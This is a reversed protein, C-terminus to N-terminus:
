NEDHLWRQSFKSYKKTNYTPMSAAMLTLMRMMTEIHVDIACAMVDIDHSAPIVNYISMHEFRSALAENKSPKTHITSYNTLRRVMQIAIQKVYGKVGPELDFM